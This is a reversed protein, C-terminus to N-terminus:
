RVTTDPQVNLPAGGTSIPGPPQARPAAPKKPKAAAHATRPSPPQPATTQQPLPAATAAPAPQQLANVKASLVAIQDIVTKLQEQQDSMAKSLTEVDEATKQQSALLDPMAAKDGPDTGSSTGRAFSRILPTMDTWAFVGGAGTLALLAVLVLPWRRRRPRLLNPPGEIPLPLMSETSM